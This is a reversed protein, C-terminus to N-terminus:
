KKKQEIPQQSKPQETKKFLKRWYGPWMLQSWILGLAIAILILIIKGPTSLPFIIM